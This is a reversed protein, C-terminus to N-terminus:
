SAVPGAPSKMYLLWSGLTAGILAHAVSPGTFVTLGQLAQGAAVLAIPGFTALVHKLVSSM